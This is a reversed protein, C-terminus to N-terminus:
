GRECFQMFFSERVDRHHRIRGCPPTVAEKAEKPSIMMASGSANIPKAPGRTTSCAIRCFSGGTDVSQIKARFLFSQNCQEDGDIFLSIIGIIVVETLFHVLTDLVKLM